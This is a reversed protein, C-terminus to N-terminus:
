SLRRECDPVPCYTCAGAYRPQQPIRGEALGAIGEAVLDEIADLLADFSLSACDNKKIFSADEFVTGDVAGRVLDKDTKARYGLYLAGACHLADMRGRLAQAYMLAQPHKPLTPDADKKAGLGYDSGVSGKYDVVAFRGAEENVDVRDARGRLRVGAYEVGDQEDIVVEHAAVAFGPAFRAQHCLSEAMLQYLRQLHLEEASSVAVYRGRGPAAQKERQVQDRFVEDLLRQDEVWPREGVRRCGEKALAEYFAAFVAHVFSGEERPGFQEDLTAPAVRSQIFWTYPCDLYREIASPSLVLLTRGEERVRRLFDVLHLRQLRGRQVAPLAVTAVPEQFADGVTEVLCDEGLRCAVASLARPLDFLARDTQEWAAREAADPPQAELAAKALAEGYEKLLFAPYAEEGEPTRCPVVCAFQRRAAAMAGAFLRRQEDFLSFPQAWGLKEALEDLATAGARAGFGADSVDSLLVLDYSSPGLSKLRYPSAFEVSPGAGEAAAETRVAGELWLVPVLDPSGGLAQTVELVERLAAVVASECRRALPSLAAAEAVAAELADACAALSAFAAQGGGFAGTAEGDLAQVARAVAACLPSAEALQGLMEEATLTRDRRLAGNFDSVERLGIGVLPNALADTAAAVGHHGAAVAQVSRWLRAAATSEVPSELREACSLGEAALSPALAECLVPANPGCVLVSRAGDAVAELVSARVLAATATSGAPVLFQPEVGAALPPMVVSGGAAGAMPVPMDGAADATAAAAAVLARMGPTGDIADVMHVPPLPVAGAAAAAALLAAAQDPEVLHAQSLAAEYAQALALVAEEHSSLNGAAANGGMSALCSAYRRFFSALQRAAGPSATLAQQNALLRSVLVTRQTADVLARGDGWLEWLEQVWAAATMRRVGLSAGAGAGKAARKAQDNAREITRYLEVSM